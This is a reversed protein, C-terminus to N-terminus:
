KLKRGCNSCFRDKKGQRAGCDPCLSVSMRRALIEEEIIGEIDGSKEGEEKEKLPFSVRRRVLIEKEILAEVDDGKEAEDLEKLLSLAEGRYRKKLEEYDERSLKDTKFDFDLEKLTSYLSEKRSLLEGHRDGYIEVPMQESFKKFLPYVLVTLVILMITVAIFLLM